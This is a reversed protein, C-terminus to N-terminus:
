LSMLSKFFNMPNHFANWEDKKFNAIQRYNKYELCMKLIAKSLSESDYEIVIGSCNNIYSSMWTNNTVIVPKGAGVSETFIGSTNSHYIAQDYPILIVDSKHLLDQYDKENLDHEILEVNKLAYSKLLTVLGKIYTDTESHNCQLIFNNDLFLNNNKLRSISEVIIKFGKTKRASGLSSFIIKNSNNIHQNISNLHPIPIVQVIINFNKEFESKLLISDTVYTIKYSKSISNFLIFLLKYWFFTPTKRNLDPRNLSLRLFLVLKPIETKKQLKIFLYIAFGHLHQMTSMFLTWDSNFKIQKKAKLLGRFLFLNYVLPAIFLRSFLNKFVIDSPRKSFVTSIPLDKFLKKECDISTLVKFNYNYKKSEDYISKVYNYTHGNYNLLDPEILCLNNNKLM